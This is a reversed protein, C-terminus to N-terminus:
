KDMFADFAKNFQKCTMGKCAKTIKNTHESSIKTFEEIKDAGVVEVAAMHDSLKAICYGTQIAETEAKNIKHTVILSAIMTGGVIVGIKHEVIFDKISELYKKTNMKNVGKKM